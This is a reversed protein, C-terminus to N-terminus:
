VSMTVGHHDERTPKVTREVLKGDVVDTYLSGAHLKIGHNEPRYSTCTWLDKHLYESDTTLFYGGDTDASGPEIPWEDRKLLEGDVAFLVHGAFTEGSLVDDVGKIAVREAADLKEMATFRSDHIIIGREALRDAMYRAVRYNAGASRIYARYAEGEDEKSCDADLDEKRRYPTESMVEEAGARARKFVDLMREKCRKVDDEPIDTGDWEAIDSRKQNACVKSCEELTRRVEEDIKTADYLKKKFM